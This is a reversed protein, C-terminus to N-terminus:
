VKQLKARIHHIADAERGRGVYTWVGDLKSWRWDALPVYVALTDANSNGAGRVMPGMSAARRIQALLEESPYIYIHQDPNVYGVLAARVFTHISVSLRPEDALSYRSSSHPSSWVLDVRPRAEDNLIAALEAYGGEHLTNSTVECVEVFNRRYRGPDIPQRKCEITEGSPAIFDGREYNEAAGDIRRLPVGLTDLMFEELADLGPGEKGQARRYGDSRSISM